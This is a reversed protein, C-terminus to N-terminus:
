SCKSWRGVAEVVQKRSFALLQRTLGTAREAAKLVEGAVPRNPDNAPQAHLLLHTYGTIVTLLNNFDHAIGGALRGVAEMKQAQRFQEELRKRETVDLVVGGVAPRGAEDEVPFKLTLFHRLGDCLRAVEEVSGGGGDALVRRDGAQFLAATEPPWFDADTRGAWDRRPPDFQEEWRRNAYVYRGADDKIFAVAPTNDMFARFVAQGRSLAEARRELEANAQRLQAEVQQRASVERELEGPLRVATFVPAVRVLAAVTVWSVVATAAKLLGALRYGPWWFIVADMLHTVGCLLLCVV